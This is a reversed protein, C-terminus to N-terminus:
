ETIKYKMPKVFLSVHKIVSPLLHGKLMNAYAPNVLSYLVIARVLNTMKRLHNLLPVVM